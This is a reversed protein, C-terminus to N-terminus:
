SAKRLRRAKASLFALRAMEARKAHDARRAREAPDLVGDPDVQREWRAAAARRGPATRALVDPTNAWSSHAAMQARLSRESPTLSSPM